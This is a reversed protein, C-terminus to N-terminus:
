FAWSFRFQFTHGEITNQVGFDRLYMFTAAPLVRGKEKKDPLYFISPGAQYRRVDSHTQSIGNVKTDGCFTGDLHLGFWLRSDTSYGLYTEFKYEDGLQVYTDRNESFHTYYLTIETHWRGTFDAFILSPTYKWVNDGVSAPNDPDYHGFPFTIYMVPGVYIKKKPDEIFWFGTGFIFDSIGQDHFDGIEKRTVPMLLTWAWTHSFMKKNYATFRFINTHYDFNLDNDVTDGNEDKLKDASVWTPYAEFVVGDELVPVNAYPLVARADQPIALGQFLICFVAATLTLARM